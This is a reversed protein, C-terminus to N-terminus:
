GQIDRPSADQEHSVHVRLLVLLSDQSRPAYSRASEGYCYIAYFSICHTLERIAPDFVIIMM